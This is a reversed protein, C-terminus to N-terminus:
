LKQWFRWWDHPDKHGGSRSGGGTPNSSEPVTVTVADGGLDYGGGGGPNGGTDGGNPGGYGSRAFSPRVAVTLILPATYLTKKLFNRRTQM